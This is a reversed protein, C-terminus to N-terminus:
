LADGLLSFGVKDGRYRSLLQLRELYAEIEHITISMRKELFEVHRGRLRYGRQKAMVSLLKGSEERAPDEIWFETGAKFRSVLHHDFEFQSLDNSRLLILTGQCSRLDEVCKVLPGSPSAGAIDSESGKVRDLCFARLAFDADDVLVVNRLGPTGVTREQRLSDLFGSGSMLTVARGEESGFVEQLQALLYVSFHTKGSRPKGCVSVLPFHERGLLGMLSSFTEQIGSHPIFDAASYVLKPMITLGLQQGKSSPRGQDRIGKQDVM